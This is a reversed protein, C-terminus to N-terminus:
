KLLSAVKLIERHTVTIVKSMNLVIYYACLANLICIEKIEIRGTSKSIM